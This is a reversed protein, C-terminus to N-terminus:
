RGGTEWPAVGDYFVAGPDSPDIYRWRVADAYLYRDAVDSLEVRAEAGADFRFSGLSNWGPELQGADIPLTTEGGAHFVTIRFTQAARFRVFRSNLREPLWYYAVDYLGTRPLETGWM